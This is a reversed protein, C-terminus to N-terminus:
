KDVCLRDAGNKGSKGKVNDGQPLLISETHHVSPYNQGQTEYYGPMSRPKRKAGRPTQIQSKERTKATNQWNFMM